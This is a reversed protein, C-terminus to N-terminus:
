VSKGERNVQVCDGTEHQWATLRGQPLLAVATDLLTMKEGIIPRLTKDVMLSSYSTVPTHGFYGWREWRKIGVIENLSFRGWLLDERAGLDGMLKITMPPDDLSYMPNWRGHAVFFDDEEICPELERFFRRHEEPVAGVLEALMAPERNRMTWVIDREAVGYSIFTKGLGHQMFWLFAEMIDHTAPSQCYCKGNLILDFIDDHNGRIFRASKLSLLIDIVQRSEGGRNIYDGTFCFTAQPDRRVVENILGELPKAMGHIDGVIWHM